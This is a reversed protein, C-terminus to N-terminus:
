QILGNGEGRPPLRDALDSAGDQLNQARCVAENPAEQAAALKEAARKRTEEQLAKIYDNTVKKDQTYEAKWEQRNARTGDLRYPNPSKAHDKPFLKEPTGFRLGMDSLTIKGQAVALLADDMGKQEPNWSMVKVPSVESLCKYATDIGNAVALNERGDADMAIYTGKVNYKDYIPKVSEVFAKSVGPVQAVIIGSNKAIYDGFSNGDRDPVDAYKAVIRGKLAGEAVLVVYDEAGNKPERGITFGANSPSVIKCVAESGVMTGKSQWIYKANPVVQITSILPPLEYGRDKLVPLIDQKMSAKFEGHTDAFTVTGNPETNQVRLQSPQGDGFKFQFTNNKKNFYESRQISVGDLTRAKLTVNIKSPDTAIQYKPVHGNENAMPIAIGSMGVTKLSKVSLPQETEAGSADKTVITFGDYERGEVGPMGIMDDGMVAPTLMRNSKFSWFEDLDQKELGRKPNTLQALHNPTGFGEQTSLPMFDAMRSWVAAQHEQWSAESDFSQFKSLVTEDSPAYGAAKQQDEWSPNMLYWTDKSADSLVPKGTLTSNAAKSIENMMITFRNPNGPEDMDFSKDVHVIVSDFADKQINNHIQTKFDVWSANKPVYARRGNLFVTHEKTPGIMNVIFPNAIRQNM